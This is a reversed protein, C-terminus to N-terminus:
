RASREVGADSLPSSRLGARDLDATVNEGFTRAEQQMEEPDRRLETALMAALGGAAATAAEARRLVSRTRRSLLDDITLSMEHRTAWIAEAKLYPLGEVLPELLEPRGSAIELVQPAETGHRRVLASM